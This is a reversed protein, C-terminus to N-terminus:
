ALKPYLLAVSGAQRSGASCAVPRSGVGPAVPVPRVVVGAGLNGLCGELRKHMRDEWGPATPRVRGSHLVAFPRGAVRIVAAMDLLGAACTFPNSLMGIQGSHDEAENGLLVNAVHRDYKRCQLDMDANSRFERCFPTWYKSPDDPLDYRRISDELAVPIDLEGTRAASLPLTSGRGDSHVLQQRRPKRPSENEGLVPSPRRASM